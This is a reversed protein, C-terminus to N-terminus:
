IAYFTGRCEGYKKNVTVATGFGPRAVERNDIKNRACPNIMILDLLPSEYNLEEHLFFHESPVATVNTQM